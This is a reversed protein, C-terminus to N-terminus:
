NVTRQKQQSQRRAEVTGKDVQIGPFRKSLLTLLRNKFFKKLGLYFDNGNRPDKFYDEGIGFKVLADDVVSEVLVEVSFISLVQIHSIPVTLRSKEGNKTHTFLYFTSGCVTDLEEVAFCHAVVLEDFGNYSYVILESSNLM